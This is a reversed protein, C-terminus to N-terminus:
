GINVAGLRERYDALRGAQTSALAQIGAATPHPVQIHQDQPDPHHEIPSPEELAAVQRSVTSKDPM